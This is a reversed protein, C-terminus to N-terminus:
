WGCYVQWQLNVLTINGIDINNLIALIIAESKENQIDTHIPLRQGIPLCDVTPQLDLVFEQITMFKRKFSPKEVEKKIIKM